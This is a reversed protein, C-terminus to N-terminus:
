GLIEIKCGHKKTERDYAIGVALIRGTYKPAEGLKPEFNLAYQRNKIQRIAEEPTHDVKLELIICDDRFNREPYFIFDVYGIGAKDEREVRYSDRASLYVLNVLATLDAESNYSLLPIETNHAHELISLMTDTDCELTARLMKESERALQNVYGLSPEKKLMNSFQDMLEKNPIQVFGNDYSLFGYVVMASFIENKTSLNMSAAAYETVQAPVKMGAAMFALDDRVDDVNKEIYYFIEDYPGSSTWYNGLNNNTLSAVVSRPNYIHEGSMIHYGDYWRKLEERSFRPTDETKRYRSFLMDVEQETFGFYRSFKEETAMTYELFMNLESGSSYKQVPLIGTMYALSVYAKGKLLNKLFRLYDQRDSDNFFPVHFVADWEDLVFIFKRHTHMHVRKLDETLSGNNRFNVEPYAMHLDERLLDKINRIYSAYSKCEDDMESFDIYIVDYRNLNERYDPFAAIALSDFLDGADHACSFFAGIMNAIITKGFRRPRTICIFQNGERVLPILEELIKSKDVFFPKLTESKYMFYPDEGNLYIGM